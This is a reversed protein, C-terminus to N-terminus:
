ESVARDACRDLADRTAYSHRSRRPPTRPRSRWGQVFSKQSRDPVNKGSRLWFLQDQLAAGELSEVVRATVDSTDILRGSGTASRHM